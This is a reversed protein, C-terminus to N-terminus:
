QDVFLRCREDLMSQMSERLQDALEPELQGDAFVDGPLPTGCRVFERLEPSRGLFAEVPEPGRGDVRLTQAVELHGDVHDLLVVNHGEPLVLPEGNISVTRKLVGHELKLRVGGRAVTISHSAVGTPTAHLSGEFSMSNAVSTDAFLWGPRGRWLVAITPHSVTGLSPPNLGIDDAPASIPNLWTVAVSASLPLPQAEVVAPAVLAGALLLVFFVRMM